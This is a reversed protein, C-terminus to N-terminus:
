FIFVSFGLAQLVFLAYIGILVYAVKGDLSKRTSLAYWVYMTSLLVFFMLSGVAAVNVESFTLLSSAGLILTINTICSGLLNGLAMSAFKKRLAQITTALEPLSTATGVITAGIVSPPVDFFEAINVGSEVTFRSTVVILVICLILKLSLMAKDKSNTPQLDMTKPAKKNVTVLFYGFLILLIAGLALSLRGLQVVFLPIISSLFLFQVLEKQSEEEVSVKTRSLIMALGMIITLNAVNSGLVNGLSLGAEGMLSAIISVSLEPLSTSVSLLIFGAAMESMGFIKSWATVYRIIRDSVIGLLFLSGLLILIDVLIDVAPM